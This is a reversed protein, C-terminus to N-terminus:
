AQSSERPRYNPSLTARNVRTAVTTQLYSLKLANGIKFIFWVAAIFLPRAVAPVPLDLSAMPTAHHYTKSIQLGNLKHLEALSKRNFHQLHHVEYLRNFAISVGALRAIRAARYLLGNDDITMTIVVGEPTCLGRVMCIFATADPVHEITAMNVVADFQGLDFDLVDGHYFEIESRSENPSM